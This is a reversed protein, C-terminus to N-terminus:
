CRTWRSVWTSIFRINSASWGYSPPGAAASWPLRRASHMWAQWESKDCSDSQLQWTETMVAQNEAKVQRVRLILVPQRSVDLFNCFRRWNLSAFSDIGYKEGEKARLVDEESSMRVAQGDVDGEGRGGLENASGSINQENERIFLYHAFILDRWKCTICNLAKWVIVFPPLLSIDTLEPPARKGGGGFCRKMKKKLVFILLVRLHSKRAVMQCFLWWSVGPGRRDLFILSRTCESEPWLHWNVFSCVCVCM